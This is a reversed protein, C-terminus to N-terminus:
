FIRELGQENLARTAPPWESVRKLHATINPWETTPRRLKMGWRAMPLLLDDAATPGDGILWDQTALHTDILDWDRNILQEASSKVAAHMEEPEAYRSPMFFPWFHPHLTGSLYAIWRYYAARNAQGVTPGLEAAPESDTLHFLIAGVEVLPIGNETLTPVVGMPNIALYQPSRLESREVKMNGYPKGIKELAVHIALACTGPMWYLSRGLSM